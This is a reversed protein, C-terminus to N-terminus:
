EYSTVAARRSPFQVMTANTLIWEGQHKYLKKAVVTVTDGLADTYFLKGGLRKCITAHAVTRYHQLLEM